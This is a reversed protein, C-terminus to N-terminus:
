LPKNLKRGGDIEKAVSGSTRRLSDECAQQSKFISMPGIQISDTSEQKLKGLPALGGLVGVRVGSRPGHKERPDIPCSAPAIAIGSENKTAELYIDSRWGWGYQGQSERVFIREILMPSYQDCVARVAFLHSESRKLIWEYCGAGNAPSQVIHLGQQRIWIKEVGELAHALTLEPPKSITDTQTPPPASVLPSGPANPQQPIQPRLRQSPECASLVIVWGLAISSAAATRVTINIPVRKM